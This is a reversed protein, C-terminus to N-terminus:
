RVVIDEGNDPRRVIRVNVYFRQAMDREDRAVTLNEIGSGEGDAVFVDKWEDRAWAPGPSGLDPILAQVAYIDTM